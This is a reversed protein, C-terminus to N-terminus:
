AAAQEMDDADGDWGKERQYQASARLNETWASM